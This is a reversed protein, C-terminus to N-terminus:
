FIFWRLQDLKYIIFITIILNIISFIYNYAERNKRFNRRLLIALNPIFLCVLLTFFFLESLQNEIDSPGYFMFLYVGILLVALYVLYSIKLSLTSVFRKHNFLFPKVIIFALVYIILFVIM